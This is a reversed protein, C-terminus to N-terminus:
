DNKFHSHHGRIPLASNICDTSIELAEPVAPGLLLSASSVSTRQGSLPALGSMVHLCLTIPVV